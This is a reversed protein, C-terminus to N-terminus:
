NEGDDKPRGEGSPVPLSELAAGQGAQLEARLRFHQPLAQAMPGDGRSSQLVPTSRITSKSDERRGWERQGIPMAPMRGDSAQNDLLNEYGGYVNHEPRWVLLTKIRDEGPDPGELHILARNSGAAQFVSNASDVQVPPMSKFDRDTHLRALYGALYATVQKLRLQTPDTTLM